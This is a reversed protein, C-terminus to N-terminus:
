FRCIESEVVNAWVAIPFGIPCYSYARLAFGLLYNEGIEYKRSGIDMTAESSIKVERLSLKSCATAARSCPLCASAKEDPEAVV